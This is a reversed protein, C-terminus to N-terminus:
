DFRVLLEEYSKRWKPPLLTKDKRFYGVSLLMPVWYNGPIRFAEKVGDIDFGDMPHSDFGLSKAALMLNMGFFGANKCAFAVQRAESAGYLNKCGNEFWERQSEKLMGVKVLEAFDKELVPHGPRWGNMDALLIMTVPAETVKPQDWAHKQLRLKDQHDRLVILNWPQLNFSSPTKAAIEIMQRLQDDSIDRHPDFYNVARRKEVVEKFEM